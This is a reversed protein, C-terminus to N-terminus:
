GRFYGHVTCSNYEQTVVQQIETDERIYPSDYIHYNETAPIIVNNIYDFIDQITPNEVVLSKIILSGNEDVEAEDESDLKNPHTYYIDAKIEIKGLAFPTQYLIPQFFGLVDLLGEYEKYEAYDRFCLFAEDDDFGVRLKYNHSWELIDSLTETTLDFIIM